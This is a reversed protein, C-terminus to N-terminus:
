LCVDKSASDLCFTLFFSDFVKLGWSQPGEVRMVDVELDYAPTLRISVSQSRDWTGLSDYWPPSPSDPLDMYPTGQKGALVATRYRPQIRKDSVLLYHYGHGNAANNLNLSENPSCNINSLHRSDSAPHGPSSLTSYLSGYFVQILHVCTHSYPWTRIPYLTFDSHSPFLMTWITHSM